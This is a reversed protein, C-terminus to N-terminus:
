ESRRDGEQQLAVSLTSTPPKSLGHIWGILDADPCGGERACSVAARIHVQTANRGVTVPFSGSLSGVGELLPPAEDLSENALGVRVVTRFRPTGTVNVLLDLQSDPQLASAANVTVPELLVVFSANNRM